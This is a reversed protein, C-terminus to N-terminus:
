QIKGMVKETLRDCQKFGFEFLDKTNSLKYLIEKLMEKSRHLRIKVNALSLDLTTAIEKLSMEEVEKMIYVVRYKFELKDIANELLQKAENQIMKEQPNSQINDPFEIISLDNKGQYFSNLHIINGKNKLVVLSENIAIRILWTSFKSNSNFQHLNTFAKIYSNQMIDEIEEQGKIYSRIIRFLKQNNRRVLIEYLEKEGSLIRNIIIEDTIKQHNIPIARM